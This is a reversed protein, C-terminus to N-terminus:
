VDFMVISDPRWVLKSWCMSMDLDNQYCEGDGEEYTRLWRVGYNIVPYGKESVGMSM